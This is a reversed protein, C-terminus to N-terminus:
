LLLMSIFGLSMVRCFIFIELTIASPMGLLRDTLRNIMAPFLGRAANSLSNPSFLTGVSTYQLDSHM